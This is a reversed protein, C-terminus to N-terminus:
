VTIYMENNLNKLSRGGYDKFPTTGFRVQTTAYTWREMAGQQTKTARRSLSISGMTTLRIMALGDIRAALAQKEAM